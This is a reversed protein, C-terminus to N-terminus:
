IITSIYDFHEDEDSTDRHGIKIAIYFINVQFDFTWAHLKIRHWSDFIGPFQWFSDVDRYMLELLLSYYTYMKTLLM